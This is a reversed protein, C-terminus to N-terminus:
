VAAVRGLKQTTIHMMSAHFESYYDLTRRVIDRLSCPCVVWRPFITSYDLLPPFKRKTQDPDKATENVTHRCTNCISSPFYISDEAYSELGPVHARIRSALAETVPKLNKPKRGCCCCIAGRSQKHDRPGGDKRVMPLRPHLFSGLGLYIYFSSYLCPSPLLFAVISPFNVAITCLAPNQHIRRRSISLPPGLVSCDVQRLYYRDLTPAPRTGLATLLWTGCGAAARVEGRVRPRGM